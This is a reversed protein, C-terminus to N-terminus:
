LVCLYLSFVTEPLIFHAWVFRCLNFSIRYRFWVSFYSYFSSSRAIDSYVLVLVSLQFRLSIHLFHFELLFFFHTNNNFGALEFSFYYCCCGFRGYFSHLMSHRLRIELLRYFATSLFIRVCFIFGTYFTNRYTINSRICNAFSDFSHSHSLSAGAYKTVCVFHELWDINHWNIPRVLCVVRLYVHVSCRDDFVSYGCMQRSKTGGLLSSLFSCSRDCCAEVLWWNLGILTQFCIGHFIAQKIYIAKISEIKWWREFSISCLIKKRKGTKQIDTRSRKGVRRQHQQWQVGDSQKGKAEINSPDELYIKKIIPNITM